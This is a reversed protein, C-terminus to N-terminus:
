RSFGGNGLIRYEESVEWFVALVDTERENDLGECFLLKYADNAHFYAEDTADYLRVLNKSLCSVRIGNEEGQAMIDLGLHNLRIDFQNEIQDRTLNKQNAM